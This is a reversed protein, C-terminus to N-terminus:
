GDTETDQRLDQGGMGITMMQAIQLMQDVTQEQKEFKPIFDDIKHPKSGKKRNVNAVTQATIAHGIYEAQGGFPEISRFAMWESLERSSMRRLMEDRPIGLAM